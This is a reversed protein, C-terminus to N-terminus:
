PALLSLGRGTFLPRHNSGPIEQAARHRGWPLRTQELCFVPVSNKLQRLVKLFITCVLSQDASM